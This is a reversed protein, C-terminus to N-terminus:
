PLEQSPQESEDLIQEAEQFRKILGDAWYRAILLRLLRRDSAFGASGAAESSSNVNTKGDDVGGSEDDDDNDDDRDGAADSKSHHEGSDNSPVKPRRQLLKPGSLSKIRAILTELVANPTTDDGGSTEKLPLTFGAQRTFTLSKEFALEEEGRGDPPYETVHFHAVQELAVCLVNGFASHINYKTHVVENMLEERSLQLFRRWFSEVSQARCWRTFAMGSRAWFQQYSPMDRKMRQRLRVRDAWVQDRLTPPWPLTDLHRIEANAQDTEFDSISRIWDAASTPFMHQFGCCSCSGGDVFDFLVRDILWEDRYRPM